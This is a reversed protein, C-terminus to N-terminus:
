KWADMAALLARDGAIGKQFVIAARRQDALRFQVEIWGRRTLLDFNRAIDSDAASLAMVFLNPGLPQQIGILQAGRDGEDTKMLVPAIEKVTSEKSTFVLGILYSAPLSAERNRTMQLKLTIGAGQIQVTGVLAPDLPQGPKGVLNEFSWVVRGPVTRPVQDTAGPVEIFLTASQAVPIQQADDAVAGSPSAPAGLRAAIKAEPAAQPAAPNAAAQEAQERRAPDVQDRFTYALGALTAIVLVAAAGIGAIRWDIAPLPLRTRPKSPTHADGAHIAGERDEPAGRVTGVPDRGRHAHDDHARDDQARGDQAHDDHDHSHHGQGDQARDDQAHEDQAPEAHGGAAADEAAQSYRLPPQTAPRSRARAEIELRAIVAELQAREREIQDQPLPPDAAELQSRLTTRARDYIARRVDPGASEGLNVIARSLLPYYDAM